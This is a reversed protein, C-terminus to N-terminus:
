IGIEVWPFRGNRGGVEVWIKRGPKNWLITMSRDITCVDILIAFKFETWHGIQPRIQKWKKWENRLVREEGEM